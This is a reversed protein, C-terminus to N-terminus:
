DLAGFAIRALEISAERATLPGGLDPDSAIASYVRDGIRVLVQASDWVAEDGVGDIEEPDDTLQGSMTAFEREGFEQDFYGFQVSTFSMEAAAMYSCYIFPGASGPEPEGVPEGLIEAAQAPTVLSCVDLDGGNSSGGGSDSTATADSGGDGARATAVADTGGDSDDDDDGGGCATWLVAGLLVLPLVLALRGPSSRALRSRM